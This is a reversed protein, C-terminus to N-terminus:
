EATEAVEVGVEPDERLKWRRDTYELGDADLEVLRSHKLVASRRWGPEVDARLLPAVIRKDTLTVGRELLRRTMAANPRANPDITARGNPDLALGNATRYLLIAQVSPEALRTLARHAEHFEPTDEEKPDRTFEWLKVEAHPHQLWRTAAEEQDHKRGAELEALTKTWKAQIAAEADAPCDREGYVEEVLAEIDDPLAITERDKLALWSRLLV